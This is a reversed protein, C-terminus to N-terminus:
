KYLIICEGTTSPATEETTSSVSTSLAPTSTSYGTLLTSPEGKCLNQCNESFMIILFIFYM